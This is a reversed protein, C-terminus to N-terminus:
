VFSHEVRVVLKITEDYKKFIAKIDSLIESNSKNKDPVPVVLDFILNTHTPGKVMKFDHFSYENNYGKIIGETIKKYENVQEDDTVIPDMHICMLINMKELIEVEINDIIDHVALIDADAPVEAHVSGIRRGPGYDHIILDHIGVIGDNKTIIREIEKVTDEEPAQGLLHGLIDKVIGVGAMIIIVSVGIGIISDAAKFPTFYAIVLAAITAVTSIGDNISDKKVAKLNLNDTIAFLNHNLYAMLFKVAAAVTLVVLNWPSFNVQEPHLLKDVSATLQDFGMHFILFAVVLASIYEMRGHGFPHDKDVPRMSLKAGAITVVNSGADSLNNVADATIAASNTVSGIFFKFVCLIVNCIIGTVGSFVSLKERKEAQSWSKKQIIKEISKKNMKDGEVDM